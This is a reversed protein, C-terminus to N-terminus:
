GWHRVPPYQPRNALRHEYAAINYAGIVDGIGPRLMLEFLKEGLETRETKSMGEVETALDDLMQTAQEVDM